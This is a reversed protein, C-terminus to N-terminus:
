RSFGLWPCTVSRNSYKNGWLSIWYSIMRLRPLQSKLRWQYEAQTKRSILVVYVTPSDFSFCFNLPTILTDLDKPLKWFLLWFGNAFLSTHSAQIWGFWRPQCCIVRTWSLFSTKVSLPSVERNLYAMRGQAQILCLPERLKRKKMPLFFVYFNANNQMSPLLFYIEPM